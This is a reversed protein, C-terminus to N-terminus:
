FPTQRATNSASAAAPPGGASTSISLVCTFTWRDAAPPLPPIAGLRDADAPAAPVGLDMGDSVRLAPREGEVQYGILGCVAAGGLREECAERDAADDMGVSGVVAVADAVQDLALPGHRIDRWLGVPSPFAAEAAGEVLPTVGDLAHEAPALVAAAECGAVVLESVGEEPLM